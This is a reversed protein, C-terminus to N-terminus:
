YSAGTDGTIGQIGQSGTAGTNYKQILSIIYNTQATNPNYYICAM